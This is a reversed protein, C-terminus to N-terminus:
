DLLISLIFQIACFLSFEPTRSILKGSSVAAMHCVQTCPMLFDLPRHSRSEIEMGRSIEWTIPLEPKGQGPQASTIWQQEQRAAM